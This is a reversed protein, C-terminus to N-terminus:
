RGRAAALVGRACLEEIPKFDLYDLIAQAKRAVLAARDRELLVHGRAFVRYALAPSAEHMLVLDVPKGTAAELRSALDGLDRVSLSAGPFLGIAVDVDRAGRGGQRVASGFLLAYSIRPDSEVVSRIADM